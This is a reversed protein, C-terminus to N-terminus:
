PFDFAPHSFDGNLQSERRACAISIVLAMTATAPLGKGYQGAAPHDLADKSPHNETATQYAVVLLTGIHRFGYNM